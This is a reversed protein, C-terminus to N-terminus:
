PFYALVGVNTGLSLPSLPSWADKADVVLVTRVLSVRADLSFRLAFTSGLAVQVGPHIGLAGWLNSARTEVGALTATARLSGMNASGCLFFLSRHGCGVLAITLLSTYARAQDISAAGLGIEDRAELNLAFSPWRVGIAIVPGLAIHPQNGWHGAVALSAYPRPPASTRALASGQVNAAYTPPASPEVLPSSTARPSPPVRSESEPDIAISVAVALSQVLEACDSVDAHLRRVGAPGGVPTSLAIKGELGHRAPVISVEVVLDPSESVFPSYGLRRQIADRFEADTACGATTTSYRLEARPLPGAAYAGHAFSLLFAALALLLRRM